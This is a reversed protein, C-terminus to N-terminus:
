HHRARDSGSRREEGARRAPNVRREVGHRREAPVPMVDRRRDRAIRRGFSERRDMGRRHVDKMGLSM